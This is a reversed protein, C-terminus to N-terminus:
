RLKSLVTERNSSSYHWYSTGDASLLYGYWITASGYHRIIESNNTTCKVLIIGDNTESIANCSIENSKLTGFYYADDPIDKLAQTEALSAYKITTNNKANFYIVPGFSVVLIIIIGIIYSSTNQNQNSIITTENQSKKDDQSEVNVNNDSSTNNMFTAKLQGTTSYTVSINNIQKKSVRINVKKMGHKITLLGDEELTMKFIDKYGSEGILEDNLLIKVDTNINFTIILNDKM